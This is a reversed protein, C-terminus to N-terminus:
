VAVLTTICISSSSTTTTTSAQVNHTLLPDSSSWVAALLQHPIGQQHLVWAIFDAVASFIKPASCLGFPLARDVYVCEDWAIGLLHYDDPHVPVIRYADKLDSKVLM